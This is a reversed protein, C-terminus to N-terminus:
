LLQHVLLSARFSEDMSPLSSADLCIDQGRAHARIFIYPYLVHYYGSMRMRTHACAHTCSFILVYGHVQKVYSLRRFIREVASKRQNSFIREFILERGHFVMCLGVNSLTKFNPSLISRYYAALGVIFISRQTVFIAYDM